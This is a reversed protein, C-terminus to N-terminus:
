IKMTKGCVELDELHTLYRYATARSIGFAKALKPVLEGTAPGTVDADAFRGAM